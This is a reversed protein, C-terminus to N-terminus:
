PACPVLGSRPPKMKRLMERGTADSPKERSSQRMIKGVSPGYMGSRSRSTRTSADDGGFGYVSADRGACRWSSGATTLHGRCLAVQCKVSHCADGFRAGSKVAEISCARVDQDELLAPTPSCITGPPPLLTGAAEVVRRTHPNPRSGRRVGCSKMLAPGVGNSGSSSCLGGTTDAVDSCRVAANWVTLGFRCRKPIPTTQPPQSPSLADAASCHFWSEICAMWAAPLVLV